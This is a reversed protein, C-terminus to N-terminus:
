PRAKRGGHPRGCRTARPNRPRFRAEGVLGPRQCRFAGEATEQAFQGAILGNGGLADRAHEIGAIVAPHFPDLLGREHVCVVGSGIHFAAAPKQREDIEQAAAVDMGVIQDRPGKGTITSRSHRKWGPGASRPWGSGRSSGCRKLLPMRGTKVLKSPPALMTAMAAAPPPAPGAAARFPPGAGRCPSARERCCAPGLSQRHGSAQPCPARCGRGHPRGRARSRRWM